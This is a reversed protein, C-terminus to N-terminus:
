PIKEKNDTQVFSEKFYETSELQREEDLTPLKAIGVHSSPNNKFSSASHKSLDRPSKISKKSISFIPIEASVDSPSQSIKSCDSNEASSSKQQETLAHVHPRTLKPLGHDNKVNVQIKQPATPSKSQSYKSTAVYEIQPSDKTETTPPTVSHKRSFALDLNEPVNMASSYDIKSDCNTQSNQTNLCEKKKESQNSRHLKTKIDESVHLNGDKETSNSDLSQLLNWDKVGKHMFEEEINNKIKAYDRGLSVADVQDNQFNTSNSVLLNQKNTKPTIFDHIPTESRYEFKKNETNVVAPYSTFNLSSDENIKGKPLAVVSVIKELEPNQEKALNIRSVEALSPKKDLTQNQDLHKLETKDAIKNLNPLSEILNEEPLINPTNEVHPEIFYQEHIADNEIVLQLIRGKSFPTKVQNNPSIKEPEQDLLTLETEKKTSLKSNIVVNRINHNAPIKLLSDSIHEVENTLYEGTSSSKATKVSQFATETSFLVEENRGIMSETRNQLCGLNISNQNKLSIVSPRDLFIDSLKEDEKNKEFNSDVLSPDQSANLGVPLTHLDEIKSKGTSSQTNAELLYLPQFETTRNWSSQRSRSRLFKYSFQSTPQFIIELSPKFLKSSSPESGKRKRFYLNLPISIQSSCHASSDYTNNQTDSQSQDGPNLDELIVQYSGAFKQLSQLSQTEGLRLSISPLPHFKGYQPDISPRISEESNDLNAICNIMSSVELYESPWKIAPLKHIDTKVGLLSLNLHGLDIARSVTIFRASIMSPGLFIGIDIGPTSANGSLIDNQLTRASVTVLVSKQLKRNDKFREGSFLFNRISRKKSQVTHFSKKFLKICSDNDDHFNKYERTNEEPQSDSTVTKPNHLELVIHSRISSVCPSFKSFDTKEITKQATTDDKFDTHTNIYEQSPEYELWISEQSVKVRDVVNKYTGIDSDEIKLSERCRMLKESKDFNNQYDSRESYISQNLFLESHYLPINKNKKKIKLKLIGPEASLNTTKFFIVEKEALGKHVSQFIPSFEIASKETKKQFNVAINSSNSGSTTNSISDSMVGLSSLKLPQMLSSASFKKHVKEHKILDSSLDPSEDEYKDNIDNKQLAFSDFKPELEGVPSSNIEFLEEFNIPDQRFFYKFVKTFDQDSIKRVVSDFKQPTSQVQNVDENHNIDRGSIQSTDTSQHYNFSNQCDVQIKNEHFNSNQASLFGIGNFTYSSILLKANSNKDCLIHYFKKVDNPNMSLEENTLIEELAFDDTTKEAQLENCSIQRFGQAFYPSKILDVENTPRDFYPELSAEFPVLGSSDEPSSETLNKYNEDNCEKNNENALPFSKLWNTNETTNKVFHFDCFNSSTAMYAEKQKEGSSEKPRSKKAKSIELFKSIFFKIMLENFNGLSIEFYSRSSKGACSENSKKNYSNISLTKFNESFWLNKLARSTVPFNSCDNQQLLQSKDGNGTMWVLNKLCDDLSESNIKRNFASCEIFHINNLVSEPIISNPMELSRFGLSENDEIKHFRLREPFELMNNDVIVKGISFCDSNEYNKILNMSGLTNKEVLAEDMSKSNGFGIRTEQTNSEFSFKLLTRAGSINFILNQKAACKETIMDRIVKNFFEDKADKEGVVYTLSKLNNNKINPEREFKVLERNQFERMGHKSAGKIDELKLALNTYKRLNLAKMLLDIETNNVAKSITEKGIESSTFQITFHKTFPVPKTPVETELEILRNEFKLDSSQSVECVELALDNDKDNIQGATKIGAVSHELFDAAELKSALPQELTSVSFQHKSLNQLESNEIAIKNESELFTEFDETGGLKHEFSESIERSNSITETCPKSFSENKSDPSGTKGVKKKKKKKTKTVALNSISLEKSITSNENCPLSTSSTPTLKEDPKPLIEIGSIQHIPSAVGLDSPCPKTSGSGISRENLFFHSGTDDAVIEKKDKNFNIDLSDVGVCPLEISDFNENTRLLSKVTPGLNSEKEKEFNVGKGSKKKKKSNSSAALLPLNVKRPHTSSNKSAIPKENHQNKCNKDSIHTTGHLDPPSLRSESCMPHIEKEIRPKSLQEIEHAIIEDDAKKKESKLETLINSYQLVELIESSDIGESTAQDFSIDLIEDPFDDSTKMAFNSTQSQIADNNTVPPLKVSVKKVNDTLENCFSREENEYEAKLPSYLPVQIVDIENNEQDSNNETKFESLQPVELENITSGSEVSDVLIDPEGLNEEVIEGISGSSNESSVHQVDDLKTPIKTETSLDNNVESSQIDVFEREENEKGKSTFNEAAGQVNMIEEHKSIKESKSDSDQFAGSLKLVPSTELNRDQTAFGELNERSVNDVVISSTDSRGSQVDDDIIRSSQRISKDKILEISEQVFKDEIDMSLNDQNPMLKSESVETVEKNNATKEKDQSKSSHSIELEQNFYDMDIEVEQIALDGCNDGSIDVKNDLSAIPNSSQCITNKAFTNLEFLAEKENEFHRSEAYEESLDKTCMSEQIVDKFDNIGLEGLNEQNTDGANIQLADLKAFLMAGDNVLSNIEIYNERDIGHHKDNAFKKPIDETLSNEISVDCTNLEDLNEENLDGTTAKFAGLNSCQVNEDIKSPIIEISVEKEIQPYRCEDDEELVIETASEQGNIDDTKIEGFSEKDIYDFTDFNAHSEPCDVAEDHSLPIKEISIEEEIKTEKCDTFEESANNTATDQVNVNATDILSLSEKDSHDINDIQTDSKTYQVPKIIALHIREKDVEMEIEPHRKKAREESLREWATDQVKLNDGDLEVLTNRDIDSTSDFLAISEVRQVAKDNNVPSNEMFIAKESEPYNCEATEELLNEIAMDPSIINDADIKDPNKRDINSRPDAQVILEERGVFEDHSLPFTEPDLEKDSESHGSEVEEPVSEGVTDQVIVDVAVAGLSEKISDGGSFSQSALEVSQVYEDHSFPITVPDVKKEIAPQGSEVGKESVTEGATDKMNIIDTNIFGLCEKDLYDINDSHDSKTYLVAEHNTLPFTETGVEMEIEYHRSEAGQKSVIDGVTDQLDIDETEIEGLYENEINSRAVFKAGSDEYHLAEDHKVTNIEMSTEKENEFQNKEYRTESLDESRETEEINHNQDLDKANWIITDKRDDFQTFLESTHMAEDNTLTVLEMSVDNELEPHRYDAGEELSTEIFTGQANIDDTENDGPKMVFMDDKADAQTVLEVVRVSEDHSLSITDGDLEEECGPQETEVGDKLVNKETTDQLCINDVDIEGTNEKDIIDIKDLHASSETRQVSENHSLPITEIDEGKENEPQKFEDTEELVDEPASEQLILDDVDIAGLIEKDINDVSDLHASSETLVSENHSLPITEPDPEKESEPHGSEVEDSVSEGVTDQLIVDVAVVDLSEKDINGGADAQTVLEVVRLSKDHSLPIKQIDEGKENEPQKFEATEELVDEPASDQVIVDCVAVAGLSVKDNVGRFNSHFTSEALRVSDDRCLPITETDQEKEIAPNKFELNEESIDERAINQLILDDVDIIGRSEKDIDGGADSQNSLEAIQVTDDHVSPITELDLEKESEPNGSEVEDELVYKGTINQLSINESNKEGNCEKNHDGRSDSHNTSEALQVSKDHSLSITDGDLEEECGPQETEVGDKLVNKETTNQLYINDVDIEGINEKDIIDLTDLHASSETRQVSEAHSLSITEPDPEKESEPHGTELVEESVNKGVTDQVIEGGADAQTVLEVARVSEDHSLSITEGDLEEECGPQETEVGDKLVNKETTDQLCINDVDIEGTNEKDIIDIKDLHASSETRQVSENHSLPITEIDEGKENEPQKFEDTEELVDEPASEQLILDDVDIAGLIEKDINDVSDLHASSETLVSENQSLPITETDVEKEIAPYRTEVEKESINEGAMDQVVVDVAVADLSEKDIDGGADSQDALEAIQMSEDHSLPITEPDSEKESEPHGSEVEDELVYKETTNQSCINDADIEGTNEKDIIDIKDLHASSETRQVSENHSLPITETDVEKEIAPYITEVEKESLYEGATDRLILDDITIAGFSKKNIESEADSEVISEPRQVVKDNNMAIIELNIKKEDALNKEDFCVESKKTVPEIEEKTFTDDLDKSYNMEFFIKADFHDDPESFQIVEDNRSYITNTNVDNKIALQKCDADKVLTNEPFKDKLKVNGTDLEELNKRDVNDKADFHAVSKSRQVIEDHNSPIIGMSTENKNEPYKKEFSAESVNRTLETEVNVDDNKIKDLNEKNIDSTVEQLNFTKTCQVVEFKAFPTIEPDIGKAIVLHQSHAGEESKDEIPKIRMEIDYTDLERLNEKDFYGKNDFHADPKKHPVAEDYKFPIIENSMLNKVTPHGREFFVQSINGTSKTEEKKHDKLLYKLKMDDIDSTTDPKADSEKSQLKNSISKSTVNLSIEEEDEPCREASEEIINENHNSKMNIHDSGHDSLNSKSIESTTDIQNDSIAYQVPKSDTLPINEIYNEMNENPCNNETSYNRNMKESKLNHDKQLIPNEKTSFINEDKTKNLLNKQTENLSAINTKMAATSGECGTATSKTDPITKVSSQKKFMDLQHNFNQVNNKPISDDKSIYQDKFTKSTSDIFVDESKNTPEEFCKTKSKNTYELATSNHPADKIEKLYNSQPNLVLSNSIENNPITETFADEIELVNLYKHFPEEILDFQFNSEQILNLKEKEVLEGVNHDESSTVNKQPLNTVSELIGKIKHSLEYQGRESNKIRKSNSFTKNEALGHTSKHLNTDTLNENEISIKLEPLTNSIQDTSEIGCAKSETSSSRTMKQNSITPPTTGRNFLINPIKFRAWENKETEDSSYKPLTFNDKATVSEDIFINKRTNPLKDYADVEPSMLCSVVNSLQSPKQNRSSTIIEFRSPKSLFQDSDQILSKDANKKRAVSDVPISSNNAVTTNKKPFKESFVGQEPDINKTKIECELKKSDFKFMPRQPAQFTKIESMLNKHKTETPSVQAKEGRHGEQIEIDLSSLAPQELSKRMLKEKTLDDLPAVSDLMSERIRDHNKKENKRSRILPAILGKDGQQSNSSENESLEATAKRFIEDSPEGTNEIETILHAPYELDQRTIISEEPFAGLSIENNRVLNLTKHRDDDKKDKSREPHPQFSVFNNSSSLIETQALEVTSDTMSKERSEETTQRGFVFHSPLKLDKSKSVTSNIPSEKFMEQAALGDTDFSKARLECSNSNNNEKFDDEIHPYQVSQFIKAVRDKRGPTSNKDPILTEEQGFFFQSNKKSSGHPMTSFPFSEIEPTRKQINAPGFFRFDEEKDITSNKDLSEPVTQSSNVSDNSKGYPAQLNQRTRIMNSNSKGYVSNKSNKDLINGKRFITDAEAIKKHQNQIAPNEFCSYKTSPYRINDKITETYTKSLSAPEPPNFSKSGALYSSPLFNERSFRIESKSNNDSKEQDKFYINTKSKERLKQFNVNKRGETEAKERSIYSIQPKEFTFFKKSVVNRNQSILANEDERKMYKESSQVMPSSDSSFVNKFLFPSPEREGIMDHRIKETNTLDKGLTEYPIEDDKKNSYSKKNVNTKPKEELDSYKEPHQYLVEDIQDGASKKNTAFKSTAQRNKMIKKFEKQHPLKISRDNHFPLDSCIKQSGLDEPPLSENRPFSEGHIVNNRNKSETLSPLNRKLRSGFVNDVIEPDFGTKQLGAAVTAIFEMEKEHLDKLDSTKSNIETTTSFNDKQDRSPSKSYPAQLMQNNRFRSMPSSIGLNGLSESVGSRFINNTFTEDRSDPKVKLLSPEVTDYKARELNNEALRGTKKETITVHGHQREFPIDNYFHKTENEGWSVNKSIQPNTPLTSPNIKPFASSNNSPRITWQSQNESALRPGISDGWEEAKPEPKFPERTDFELSNTRLDIEPNSNQLNKYDLQDLRVSSITHDTVDSPYNSGNEFKLKSKPENQFISPNRRQESNEKELPFTNTFGSDTVFDNFEQATSRTQSLSYPHNSLTTGHDRITNQFNANLKKRFNGKDSILGQRLRNPDYDSDSEIYDRRNENRWRESPLDQYDEVVSGTLTSGTMPISSFTSNPSKKSTSKIYMNNSGQDIPSNEHGRSSDRLHKGPYVPTPQHNISIKELNRVPDSGYHVENRNPRQNKSDFNIEPRTSINHADYDGLANYNLDKVSPGSSSLGSKSSKFHPDVESHVIDTLQEKDPRDYSPLLNERESHFSYDKLKIDSRIRKGNLRSTPQWDQPSGYFDFERKRRKDINREREPKENEIKIGRDTKQGNSEDQRLDRKIESPKRQLQSIETERPRIEPQIDTNNWKQYREKDTSEIKENKSRDNRHITSTTATKTMNDNLRDSDKNSYLSPNKFSVQESVSSLYNNKLQKEPEYISQSVPTIPQPQIIQFPVTKSREPILPDPERSNFRTSELTNGSILPNLRSTVPGRIKDVQKPNTSIQDFSYSSGPTENEPHKKSYEIHKKYKNPRLDQDLTKDRVDKVITGHAKRDSHLNKTSKTKERKKGGFLSWSKQPESGYALKSDVSSDSETDHASEWEAADNSDYNTESRTSKYSSSSAFGKYRPSKRQASILNIKNSEKDLKALGAGVAMIEATMAADDLFKKSSHSTIRRRQRSKEKIHRGDSGSYGSRESSSGVQTIHEKQTLRGYHNEKGHREKKKSREPIEKSKQSRVQEKPIKIFGTGYALDSNVSSSSSNNGFPFFTKRTKKKKKKARYKHELPAKFISSIGSREVSHARSIELYSSSSSSFSSGTLSHSPSLSDSRHNEQESEKMAVPSIHRPPSRKQLHSREFSPGSRHIQHSRNAM